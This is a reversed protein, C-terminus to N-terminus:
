PMFYEILEKNLPGGYQPYEIDQPDPYQFLETRLAGSVNNVYKKAPDPNDMYAIRYDRQNNGESSNYALITLLTQKLQNYRKKGKKNLLFYYQDYEERIHDSEGRTEFDLNRDLWDLIIKIRESTALDNALYICEALNLPNRAGQLVDLLQSSLIIDQRVQIIKEDKCFVRVYDECLVQDYTYDGSQVVEEPFPDDYYYKKERCDPKAISM